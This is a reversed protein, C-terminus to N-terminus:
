RGFEGALDPTFCIAMEKGKPRLILLTAKCPVMPGKPFWWSPEISVVAGGKVDIVLSVGSLKSCLALNGLRNQKVSWTDPVLFASRATGNPPADWKDEIHIHGTPMISVKRWVLGAVASYGDCSGSISFTGDPSQLVDQTDFSAQGRRGVRWVGFFDAPEFGDMTPGNHTLASRTWVREAGVTISSVGPDVILREGEWCIEVSLFDGHGHGVMDKPGLPGADFILSTDGVVLKAFGADPLMNYYQELGLALWGVDEPPVSDEMASDNFVAIEGDTHVVCDLATCMRNILADIREQQTLKANKTAAIARALLLMHIHYSPSREDWFGDELVHREIASLAEEFYAESQDNRAFGYEGVALDAVFLATAGFVHHNYGLYRETTLELIAACYAIHKALALLEPVNSVVGAAKARAVASSLGMIRLSLAIPSWTFHIGAKKNIPHRAELTQVLQALTKVGALPDEDVLPLAFSFFSLDHWWNIMSPDDVFPQDWNVNDLAGYNHSVGKFVFVGEHIGSVESFRGGLVQYVNAFELLKKSSFPSRSIDKPCILADPHSAIRKNLMAHEVRGMIRRIPIHRFYHIWLGLKM